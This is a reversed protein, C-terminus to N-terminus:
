GSVYGEIQDREFRLQAIQSKVVDGISVIGVLRGRDDLVPLHRIRRDTMASMVSEVSDHPSCHHVDVTMVSAVPQDLFAVGDALRRVVDRESIIGDISTGDRSVVVAGLNHERLLGVLDAVSSGPKIHIVDFGKTSLIDHIRM